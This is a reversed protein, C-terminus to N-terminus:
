ERQTQSLVRHAGEEGDRGGLRKGTKAAGRTHSGFATDKRCTEGSRTADPQSNELSQRWTTWTGGQGQAKDCM